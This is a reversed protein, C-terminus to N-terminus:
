TAITNLAYTKYSSSNITAAAALLWWRRWFYSPLVSMPRSPAKVELTLEAGREKKKFKKLKSDFKRKNLIFFESEFKLPTFEHKCAILHCSINYIISHNM